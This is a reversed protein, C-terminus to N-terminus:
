EHLENQRAYYEGINTPELKFSRDSSNESEKVYVKIAHDGIEESSETKTPERM